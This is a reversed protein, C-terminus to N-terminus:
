NPKAKSVGYGFMEENWHSDLEKKFMAVTKANVAARPLSNWGHIVRQSFFHKRCNINKRLSPKYIKLPHGRTKSTKNVMQFFKSTKLKEFGKIIKFTEILDGRERRRELSFLDLAKLREEYSLKRLAPVMKTARRQVKELAQKDKEMWPSWAQVCYEMHPRVYTKYLIQFSEIDIYKFTRKIVRLCDMGKKAAKSSQMSPKLDPTLYVGLDKEDNIEGLITDGMQYRVTPNGHGLHMTKCKGANFRLLWKESWAQLSELDDKINEAEKDNKVCSYIKTDDAFMHISCKVHDPLDNIYVIFLIPGLVSGQPVGSVVEAVESKAGRVSVRQTRGTLFADIWQLVKGDYGYAHLKNILRKHPVSDFAKQYDLFIVDVPEGEDLNHTIDELTTLLNTLCSKGQMFGHQSEDFINYENAYSLMRERIISELIKCPVCTLSVPRYNGAKTRSGKKFIPTVQATKWDDPLQGTDLSKRFVIYFPLALEQSCEKLVEPHIQDPGPCKDPKLASLRERVDDVTFQVDDLITNM